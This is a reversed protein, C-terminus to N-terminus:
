VQLGRLREIQRLYNLGTKLINVRSDRDDSWVVPIEKIDYGLWESKILIETNFFWGDDLFDFSDMIELFLERKLFKFGCMGDSFHVGLRWQLIKNFIRSSIERQSSRNIVKAGPLLRSGNIVPVNKEILDFVELLHNLDTALDVDMYGVYTSASNAWAQKLARGVGKEPLFICKIDAFKVALNKAIEATKDISGNDAIIIEFELKHKAKFDILKAVGQALRAEENLVPLVISIM